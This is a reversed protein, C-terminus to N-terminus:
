PLRYIAVTFPITVKTLEARLNICSERAGRVRQRERDREKNEILGDDYQKILVAARQCSQWPQWAPPAAKQMNKCKIM